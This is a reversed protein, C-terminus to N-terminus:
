EKRHKGRHKKPEKGPAKVPPQSNEQKVPGQIYGLTQLDELVKQDTESKSEGAVGVKRKTTEYTDIYQPPFRKLVSDEIAGKLLGGDMDRALPQGILYLITPTIDFLETHPIEYGKKIGPGIAFIVGEPMKTTWEAHAYHGESYVFGHDSNIILVTHDDVRRMYKDILRDMFEYVPAVVRAFDADIRQRAPVPLEGAKELEVTEAYIQPNIYHWAFHSTVDVLRFYTAFVPVPEHEWLYDSVRDTTMDQAFYFPYAQLTKLSGKLEMAADDPKLLPIGHKQMEQTVDKRRKLPLNKVKEFLSVPYVTDPIDHRMMTHLRFRDTIIYGNQIPAPPYTWWWNIVGAKISRESLIEWFTKVKREPDSYPVQLGAKQVYTWDIVGHKLMTKGTAVSTWLIGSETPRFTTMHGYSGQEMLRKFAPLKGQAMLPEIMNWGVGDIGLLIVRDVPRRPRMHSYLEWGGAVIGIIVILIIIKWYKKM